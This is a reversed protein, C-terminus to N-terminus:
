FAVGTVEQPELVMTFIDFRLYFDSVYWNSSVRQKYYM